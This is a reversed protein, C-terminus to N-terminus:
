MEIDSFEAISLQVIKENEKSRIAVGEYRIIKIAM